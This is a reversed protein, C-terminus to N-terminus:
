PGDLRLETLFRLEGWVCIFEGDLNKKKVDSDYSKNEGKLLELRSM